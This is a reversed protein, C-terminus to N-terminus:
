KGRANEQMLRLTGGQQRGCEMAVGIRMDAMPVGRAHMARIDHEPWRRQGEQMLARDMGVVCAARWQAESRTEGFM